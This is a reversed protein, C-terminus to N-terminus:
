GVAIRWPGYYREMGERSRAGVFRDIDGAGRVYVTRTTRHPSTADEDEELDVVAIVVVVVVHWRRNRSQWCPPVRYFHHTSLPLSKCHKITFIAALAIITSIPRRRFSSPPKSAAMTMENPLPSILMYGQAHAYEFILMCMSM